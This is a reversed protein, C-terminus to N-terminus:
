PSLAPSIRITAWHYGVLLGLGVGVVVGSSVYFSSDSGGFSTGSFFYITIGSISGLMGNDSNLIAVLYQNPM